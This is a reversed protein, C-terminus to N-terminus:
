NKKVTESNRYEHALPAPSIYLSVLLVIHAVQLISSSIPTAPYVNFSYEIASFIMLKGILPLATAHWLLYPITHFYWVYFQYHLTRAFVIGIFNSTFITTIIFHNSLKQIGFISFNKKKENKKKENIQLDKINEIIWKHGFIIFGTISLFLLFISLYKSIFVDEPLFQLNVTWKYMFVRGVDFSNKIYEVPFTILFPLGLLLQLGACISLCIFTEQLGTGMLLVLLIGPSYLLMNMKISVGFSYIFCGTRWKGKTFLLIALYGCIVAVCDNFMRLVYISHIRKSMVLLSLIFQSNRSDGIQYLIIIIIFNLIYLAAFMCQGRLVHVGENTLWYLVSFVYLFGAPYVLPGTDGKINAYNREGSLFGGVEQMYAIWDIETYSVKLIIISCLIIEVIILFGCILLPSIGYNKLRLNLSM